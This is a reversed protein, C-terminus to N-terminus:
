IGAGPSRGLDAIGKIVIQFRRRIEQKRLDRADDGQQRRRPLLAGFVIDMLMGAILVVDELAITGRDREAELWEVLDERTRLIKQGYLYDSLEPYLVSERVILNLLAEREQDRRHDMNLRFVKMLKDVMPIEQDPSRRPDLLLHRHKSVVAGFLETKSAFHQYISRKSVSAMAAVLEMTTGAFGRELFIRYAVDVLLTRRAEPAVSLPRGRKRVVPRQENRDNLTPEMDGQRVNAVIITGTRVM